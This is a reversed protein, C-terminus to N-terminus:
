RNKERRDDGRFVTGQQDAVVTIHWVGKAATDSSTEFERNRDFNSSRVMSIRPYQGTEFRHGPLPRRGFLCHMSACQDADDSNGESHLERALYSENKGFSAAGNLPYFDMSLINASNM